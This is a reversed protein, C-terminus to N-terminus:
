DEWVMDYGNQAGLPVFVHNVPSAAADALTINTAVAM